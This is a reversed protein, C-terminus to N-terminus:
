RGYVPHDAWRVDVYRPQVNNSKLYETLAQLVRIKRPLDDSTGVHVLWEAGAVAQTFSLGLGPQYTFIQVGPVSEALQLASRVVGEPDIRDGEQLHREGYDVVFVMNPSSVDGHYPLVVGDSDLWLDEGQTTARWMVVPEREVVEISVLAPLESRVRVGKIGDIAMLREVVAQPDVWFINQEHVDAAAYVENVDLHRVGDVQAGYVFFSADTSAYVALGVLVVLVLLAPMRLVISRWPIAIRTPGSETIQPQDVRQPRAARRLRTRKRKAQGRKASKKRSAEAVQAQTLAVATEFNRTRRRRRKRVKRRGQQDGALQIRM